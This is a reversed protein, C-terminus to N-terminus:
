KTRLDVFVNNIVLISSSNNILDLHQGTRDLLRAATFEGKGVRRWAVATSRHGTMEISGHGTIRIM